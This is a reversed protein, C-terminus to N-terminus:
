WESPQVFKLYISIKIREIQMRFIYLYVNKKKKLIWEIM